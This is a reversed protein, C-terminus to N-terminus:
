WKKLGEKEKQSQNELSRIKLMTKRGPLGLGSSELKILTYAYACSGLQHEERM